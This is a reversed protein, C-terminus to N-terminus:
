AGAHGHVVPAGGPGVAREPRTQPDDLDALADACRHCAHHEGVVAGVHQDDLRRVPTPEALSGRERHPGPALAAHAEVQRRRGPPVPHVLEGCVRVHHDGRELRRGGVSKADVAGGHARPVRPQHVAFHRAEPPVVRQAVHRTVLPQHAAPCSARVLECHQEATLTRGEGRNGHRRVAGRHERQLADEGGEHLPLM